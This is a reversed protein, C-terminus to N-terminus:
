VSSQLILVSAALLLPSSRLCPSTRNGVWPRVKTFNSVGISKALGGDVFSEMQWPVRCVVHCSLNVEHKRVHLFAM